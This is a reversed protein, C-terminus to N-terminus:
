TCICQVHSTVSVIAPMCQIYESIKFTYGHCKLAVTLSLLISLWTGNM